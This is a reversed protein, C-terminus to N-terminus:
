LGSQDWWLTAIRSGPWWVRKKNVVTQCLFGDETLIELAENLDIRDYPKEVPLDADPLGAGGDRTLVARLVPVILDRARAPDDKRYRRFFTGLQKIFIDHLDPRVKEDFIAEFAEPAPPTARDIAILGKALFCPYLVDCAAVFADTHDDTWRGKPPPTTAQHVFDKAEAESLEPPCFPQLDNLHEINFGYTRALGTLGISGTLLMRLGAERRMRMAALLKDIEAAAKGPQDEGMNRVLFSLEDVVLVPPSGTEGIAKVILNSITQWYASVAANGDGNLAEIATQVVGPIAAAEALKKRLRDGFGGHEPLGSLVASLFGGISRIGQADVFVVTAGRHTLEEVAYLRLTSKGIRRLGFM